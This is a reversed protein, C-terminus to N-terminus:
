QNQAAGELGARIDAFLDPAPIYMTFKPAGGYDARWRIQGDPGIVIFTHGDRSTGMMGYRNANYAKSVALDPDSLVPTTLGEDAVKQRLLDLDDTTISVMHDIGLAQLQAPDKEIDKIQDWCPQCMLGEQFYLLVTTGRLAALDFTSGDTSPLQIAPAAKGPGPHGVQFPYKGSQRGVGSASDRPSNLVFIAGLAVIALSLVALIILLSRYNRRPKPVARGTGTKGKPTATSRSAM